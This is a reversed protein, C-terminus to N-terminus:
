LALFAYSLVGSKSPSMHIICWEKFNLLIQIGEGKCLISIYYLKLFGILYIKSIQFKM